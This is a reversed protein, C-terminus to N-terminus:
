VQEALVVEEAQCGRIGGVRLADGTHSARCYIINYYHTYLYIATASNFFLMMVHRSGAKPSVPLEPRLNCSGFNELGRSTNWRQQQIRGVKTGNPDMQHM